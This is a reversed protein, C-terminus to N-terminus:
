KPSSLPMINHIDFSPAIIPHFSIHIGFVCKSPDGKGLLDNLDEDDYLSCLTGCEAISAVVAVGRRVAACVEQAEERTSIGDVILVDAHHNKVAERM